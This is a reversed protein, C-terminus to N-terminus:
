KKRRCLCFVFFIDCLFVTFLIGGSIKFSYLGFLFGLIILVIAITLIFFGVVAYKFDLFRAM